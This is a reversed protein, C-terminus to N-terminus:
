QILAIILVLCGLIVRYWGFMQLAGRKKLFKLLFRLAVLGAVMAVLNSLLLSWLNDVFYIRDSSSIFTKLVVGCMLPISALFSYEAASASNLGMTRGTLITAGSRSVGPILALMQALGIMLARPKTLKNEDKLKSLSPLKNVLIMLVGVAGMAVGVSILHGFFPAAEIFKAALLGVIGAPISTILINVALRYNKRVFVDGLIAIIRKRFFILLALLTGINIFELFLHFGDGSAGILNQMISLHGSSSVPIFETLGQTLGLLISEFPNM